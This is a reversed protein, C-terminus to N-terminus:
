INLSIILNRAMYRAIETEATAVMLAKEMSCEFCITM